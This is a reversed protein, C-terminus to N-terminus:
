QKRAKVVYVSGKERPHWDPNHEEAELLRIQAEAKERSSHHAVLEEHGDEMKVVDYQGDRERIEYPM